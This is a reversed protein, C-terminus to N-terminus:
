CITWSPILRGTEPSAARFLMLRITAICDTLL